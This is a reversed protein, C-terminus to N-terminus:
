SLISEEWRGQHIWGVALLVLSKGREDVMCGRVRVCMCGCMWVGVCGYVWVGMCGDGDEGETGGRGEV